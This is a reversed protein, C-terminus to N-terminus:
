MYVYKEGNKNSVKSLDEVKEPQKIDSQEIEKVVSTVQEYEEVSEVASCLLEALFGTLCM